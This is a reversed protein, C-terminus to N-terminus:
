DMSDEDQAMTDIWEEITEKVLPDRARELRDRLIGAARPGGMQALADGAARFVRDPHGNLASTLAALAADRDHSALEPLARIAVDRTRGIAAPGTLRIAAELCAPTDFWELSRLAGQRITDHQSEVALADLVVPLYAHDQTRALSQLAAARVRSSRDHEARDRLWDAFRADVPGEGAAEALANVLAERVQPDAPAVDVLMALADLDKRGALAAIAETRVLDHWRTEGAITGLAAASDLSDGDALHRIAQVRAALTPGLELQALWRAEPQDAHIEALVHLDPDFAILQPQADLEFSVTMTRQDIAIVTRRERPSGRTPDDPLKIFVPLDFVFAPNAGDINQTQEIEITLTGANEDWNTAIELRPVGPRLAWQDFFQELGAGTSAEFSLRLDSTEVTRHGFADVYDALADFFLEDGFRQRLMHLLSSGKPYPNAKRGFVDWPHEYIRSVMAPQYPADARDRGLVSDFNGLVQAQYADAGDRDEFWLTALFTAFGENLWIHDWSNCTILDGFWQHALEHAILGDLDNDYTSAEDFIATGFMTTAATNEMGGAGFHHVVLQAYREWPYPEDLVREFLRIMAPTHGYTRRVDGKRGTPVYVPMPLRRSGLDVVDFKGVVLSVLYNVHDTTQDFHYIAMEPADAGYGLWGREIGVLRGNSSAIYGTPVAVILETTLRDNPFDHCPFWYSNTQPEGQTHLQAPRDPWAPSGPTWILGFPPDDVAYAIRIEGVEGPQVPPNLHITLTAGDHAFLVSRGPSEISHIAMLHADLRLQGAPSGIASFTLTELAEFRPRDMDAITIELRMHLYDVVRDPPWNRTDRGTAGEFQNSRDDTQASADPSGGALVLAMIIPVGGRVTM